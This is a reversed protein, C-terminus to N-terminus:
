PSSKAPSLWLNMALYCTAPYTIEKELEPLPGTQVSMNHSLSDPVRPFRRLPDLFHRM